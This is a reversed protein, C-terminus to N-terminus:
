IECNSLNVRVVLREERERRTTDGVNPCDMAIWCHVLFKTVLFVMEVMAQIALKMVMLLYPDVVPVSRLLFHSPYYYYYLLLTTTLLLFIIIIILM